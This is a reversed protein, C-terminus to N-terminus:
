GPYIEHFSRYPLYLPKTTGKVRIEVYHWINNDMEVFIVTGAPLSILKNDQIFAQNAEPDNDEAIKTWGMVLLISDTTLMEKSLTLREGALASYSAM